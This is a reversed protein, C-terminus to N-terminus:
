NSENQNLLKVLQKRAEEAFPDDRQEDLRIRNRYYAAAAKYDGQESYLYGLYLYSNEHNSLQIAKKFFDIALDPKENNYYAIGLNYYADAYNPNIELVKEFIPILKLFENRVLYIRGLAMLGDISRPNMKLLQHYYGIAKQTDM